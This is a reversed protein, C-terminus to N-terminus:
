SFWWMREYKAWEEDYNPNTDNIGEVPSGIDKGVKAYELDARLNTISVPTYLTTLFDKEREIIGAEKAETNEHCYQTYIKNDEVLESFKNSYRHKETEERNLVSYLIEKGGKVKGIKLTVYPTKDFYQVLSKRTDLFIQYTETRKEWEQFKASKKSYIDYLKQKAREDEFRGFSVNKDKQNKSPLQRAYATSISTIKM